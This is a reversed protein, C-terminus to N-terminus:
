TKIGKSTANESRTGIISEHLNEENQHSIDDMHNNIGILILYVFEINMASNM